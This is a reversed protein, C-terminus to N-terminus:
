WVVVGFNNGVGGVCINNWDLGIKECFCCCVVVVCRVVILGEGGFYVLLNWVVCLIKLFILM